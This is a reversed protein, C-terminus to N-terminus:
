KCDHFGSVSGCDCEGVAEWRSWSEAVLTLLWIKGNGPVEEMPKKKKKFPPRNSQIPFSINETHKETNIYVKGSVPSLLAATSITRCSGESFEEWHQCYIDCWIPLHHFPRSVSQGRDYPVVGSLLPLIQWCYGRFSITVARKIDNM